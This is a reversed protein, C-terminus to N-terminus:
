PCFHDETPAAYLFEADGAGNDVESVYGMLTNAQNEPFFQVGDVEQASGPVTAVILTSFAFVSGFRIAHGEATGRNAM